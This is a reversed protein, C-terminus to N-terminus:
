VVDVLFLGPDELHQLVENCFRVAQAGDILRHDFTLSVTMMHRSVIKGDVVVPRQAIKGLGLIGVEPWNIVTTAYTGGLSGINTITFTSGRLNEPAISRERAQTALSQMDKAIEVISKKDADRVVVVM